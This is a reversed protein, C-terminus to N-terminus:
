GKDGHWDGFDSGAQGLSRSPPVGPAGFEVLASGDADNVVEVKVRLNGGVRLLGRAKRVRYGAKVRAHLGTHEKAGAKESPTKAAATAAIDNAVDATVDRMQQSKMFAGFSVHNPVYRVREGIRMRPIGRVGGVISEESM